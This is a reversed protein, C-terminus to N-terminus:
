HWTPAPCWEPATRVEGQLLRLTAASALITGSTAQRALAAALTTVDGVIPPTGPQDPRMPGVVALGTHLGLGLALDAGPLGDLDPQSQRWRRQLGLAALVARRAHDEQALPVGFLVQFSEGTISQM